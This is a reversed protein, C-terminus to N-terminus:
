AKSAGIAKELEAIKSNIADRDADPGTFMANLGEVRDLFTRIEPLQEPSIWPRIRAMTSFFDDQDFEKWGELTAPERLGLAKADEFMSTGPQPTYRYLGFPYPTYTSTRAMRLILRLTMDRDEAKERPTCVLFNYSKHLRHRTLTEDLEFIQPLSLGKSMSDLMRPSGSEIGAGAAVVGLSKMETWCEASLRLMMDVRATFRYKVNLGARKFAELISIIRSESVVVNEDSLSILDAGYTRVLKEADRVVHDVTHFRMRTNEWAKSSNVCFSCRFPCGRSTLIPYSRNGGILRSRAYRNMDLLHYPLDFTRELPTFGANSNIVPQDKVKYGIGPISSPDGKGTALYDVLAPFSVEGEGWAIYDVLSHSLTQGPLLTPHVGGWVLPVTPKLGRVRGALEISNALQNGTMTSIGVCVTDGDLLHALEKEAEDNGTDVITVRYGKALLAEALYLPGLPLWSTKERRGDRLPSARM